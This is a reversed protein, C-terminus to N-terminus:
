CKIKWNDTNEMDDKSIWITIGTEIYCITYYPDHGIMFDTPITAIKYLEGTDLRIVIDNKIFLNNMM